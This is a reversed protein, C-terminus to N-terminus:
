STQADFLAPHDRIREFARDLKKRLADASGGLALSIEPWSQDDLRRNVLELEEFSFLQVIAEALDRDEVPKEPGPGPDAHNAEACERSVERWIVSLRRAKNAIKFRAMSALLKEMDQPQNLDFRGGRLRVFLSKFVSQCVDISGVDHRLREFDGRNRMRLRVVRLIFPEFQSVLASAAVEDGSRVRRILELFDDNTSM